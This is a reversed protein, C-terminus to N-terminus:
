QQKTGLEKLEEELRDYIEDPISIKLSRELGKSRRAKKLCDPSFCIYAGRGNKRGNVDLVVENEPTRIVRIMEKKAKMERCGVCQRLPIKKGM